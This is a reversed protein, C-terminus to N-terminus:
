RRALTPLWGRGCRLAGVTGQPVVLSIVTMDPSEKPM